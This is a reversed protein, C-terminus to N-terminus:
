NKVDEFDVDEVTDSGTTNNTETPQEVNEAASEQYLRTSIPGWTENLAQISSDIATVDAEAHAKKLTDLKENIATKDEETLKEDFEKIQKETQFIMSDAANIKEVKERELKDAEANAEAEAKM